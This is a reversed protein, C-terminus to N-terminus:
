TNRLYLALVIEASFTENPPQSLASFSASEVSFLLGPKQVRDLWQVVERLSGQLQTTIRVTRFSGDQGTADDVKVARITLATGTAAENIRRTAAERAATAQEHLPTVSALLGEAKRIRSEQGPVADLLAQRQRLGKEAAHRVAWSPITAGLILVLPLGLWIGLQVRNRMFRSLDM